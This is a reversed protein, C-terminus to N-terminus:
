QHRKAQTRKSKLPAAPSAELSRWLYWAAVSCYPHWTKAIKEIQKPNPMSRKGYARKIASQIGLDGVPLVNPRRLAFMLFMHATWVGIGKIDTLAVIVEEDSMGPLREFDLKGDLAHDALDRIYGIKQKSLGARRMEGVTLNRIAEPTIAGGCAEAVRGYITSAAKTSLQQFVISRALAEFKPERYAMRYPGVRAIISALVTDSKELHALAKKM